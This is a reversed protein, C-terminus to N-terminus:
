PKAVECVNAKLRDSKYCALDGDTTRLIPSPAIYAGVHLYADLGWAGAGLLVLAALIGVAIWTMRNNTELASWAAHVTKAAEDEFKRVGDGIALNMAQEVKTPLSAIIDAAKATVAVVDGKTSRLAQASSNELVKAVDKVVRTSADAIFTAGSQCAVEISQAVDDGALKAGALVKGQIQGVADLTERAARGAAAAGAWANIQSGVLLWAVDDESTIGMRSADAILRDRWEQPIGRVAAQKATLDSPNNQTNAQGNKTTEM